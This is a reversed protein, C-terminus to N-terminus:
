QDQLFGSYLSLSLWSVVLALSWSYFLFSGSSSVSRTAFLVILSVVLGLLFSGAHLVFDSARDVTVSSLMNRELIEFTMKASHLFSHGAISIMVVVFNNLYELISGLCKWVSICASTVVTPEEGPEKRALNKM